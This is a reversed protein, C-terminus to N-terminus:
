GIDVGSIRTSLHRKLKVEFIRKYLFKYVHKDTFHKLAHLYEVTIM